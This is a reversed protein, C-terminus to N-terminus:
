NVHPGASRCAKVYLTECLAGCVAGCVAGAIAWKACWEDPIVWYWYRDTFTANVWCDAIFWCLASGFLTGGVLFGAPQRTRTEM